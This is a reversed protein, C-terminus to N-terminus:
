FESIKELYILISILAALATYPNSNGTHNIVYNLYSNEAIIKDAWVPYDIKFKPPYGYQNFFMEISKIEFSYGNFIFSNEYGAISVFKEGDLSPSIIFKYKTRDGPELIIIKSNVNIIEFM